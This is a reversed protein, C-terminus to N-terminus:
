FGGLKLRLYKKVKSNIVSNRSDLWRIVVLWRIIIILEVVIVIVYSGM